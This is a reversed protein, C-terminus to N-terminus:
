LLNDGSITNERGEYCNHNVKTYIPLTIRFAAGETKRSNVAEITGKCRNIATRALFLGLGTGEPRGTVFLKFIEKRKKPPIGPGEDCIDIIAKSGKQEATILISSKEPSFHIANMMVNLLARKIAFSYASVPPLKEPIEKTITLGAQELRPTLIDICENLASSINLPNVQENSPKALYLFEAFVKDMRGMTRAIRQALEHVRAPRMEEAKNTERELMQADLRVASMPNRFDHLIGNAMVGSFTLHEEQRSIEQRQKDRAIAVILIVASILFSLVLVTLAFNFLSNIMRNAIIEKDSVASQKFTTEIIIENQPDQSTRRSFVFVPEQQGGVDITERSMITQTSSIEDLVSNQQPYLMGDAQRHFVTLDGNRISISQLDKRVALIRDALSSFNKWQDPTPNTECYFKTNYVLAKLLRDGQDIVTETAELHTEQQHRSKLLFLAYGALLAASFIVVLLIIELRMNSNKYNFM